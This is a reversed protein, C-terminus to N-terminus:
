LLQGFIIENSFHFIKVGKCFKGLFTPYKPLNIEALPKLLQEFDLFDGFRTVSDRMRNFLDSLQDVKAGRERKEVRERERERERYGNEQSHKYWLSM